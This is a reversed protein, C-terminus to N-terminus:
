QVSQAWALCSYMIPAIQSGRLGRKVTWMSSSVMIHSIQSFIPHVMTEMNKLLSFDLFRVPFTVWHYLLHLYINTYTIIDYIKEIHVYM